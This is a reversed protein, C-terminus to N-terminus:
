FFFIIDSNVSLVMVFYVLKLQLFSMKFFLKLELLIRKRGSVWVHNRFKGLQTYM